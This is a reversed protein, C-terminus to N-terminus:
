MSLNHFSVADFQRYADEIDELTRFRSFDVQFVNKQNVNLLYCDKNRLAWQSYLTYESFDDNPVNHLIADVWGSRYRNELMDKLQRLHAGDFFMMHHVTTYYTVPLSGVLAQYNYCYHSERWTWERFITRGDEQVFNRRTLVTDADITFFDHDDSFGALKIFQQLFWGTSHHRPIRRDNLISDIQEKTVVGRLFEDEYVFEAAQDHAIQKIAPSTRNSVIIIRDIRAALNKKVSQITFPLVTRDKDIAPIVINVTPLQRGEWTGEQPLHQINPFDHYGINNMMRDLSFAIFEEQVHLNHLQKELPARLLYQLRRCTFM